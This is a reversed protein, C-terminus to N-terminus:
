NRASEYAAVRDDVYGLLAANEKNLATSDHDGGDSWQANAFVVSRVTMVRSFLGPTGAPIPKLGSDEPPDLSVVQYTVPDMSAMVMVSSADQAQRFSLVTVTIQSTREADTYLASLAQLCGQGQKIVSALEASVDPGCDTGTTVSLRTFVASGIRVSAAPFATAATVVPRALLSPLDSPADSPLGASISPVPLVADGAAGPAATTTAPASARAAAPAHAPRRGQVYLVTGIGAAVVVLAVLVRGFAAARRPPKPAGPGAAVAAPGVQQSANQRATEQAVWTDWDPPTAPPQHDTM